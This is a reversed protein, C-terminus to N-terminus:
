TPRTLGARRGFRTALSWMDRRRMPFATEFRRLANIAGDWDRRRAAISGYSLRDMFERPVLSPMATLRRAEDIRGLQCLAEGLGAYMEIADSFRSRLLEWRRSAEGWDSRRAPLQAHRLALRRDGSIQAVAQTLV